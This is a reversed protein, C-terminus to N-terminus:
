EDDDLDIKTGNKANEIEKLFNPSLLTEDIEIKGNKRDIQKGILHRAVSLSVDKNISSIKKFDRLVGKSIKIHNSLNHQNSAHKFFEESKDPFVRNAVHELLVDENRKLKDTIFNHTEALKQDIYTQDLKLEDKIFTEIAAKLGRTEEKPANKDVTCGIFKEFYDRVENANGKKFRIYRQSLGEIWDNISITAGLHLKDIDLIERAVFNLDHDVDTGKTKNIVAIALKVQDSITYEFFVLYGGNIRKDNRLIDEFHKALEITLQVFDSCSTNNIYFCKLKQEFAPEVNPDDNVAFEGVYLSAKTFLQILDVKLDADLKSVDNEKDKIKSVIDDELNEDNAEEAKYTKARRIEHTIIHQISM